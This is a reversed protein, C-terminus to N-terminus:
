MATLAQLMVKEAIAAEKPNSLFDMVMSLPNVKADKKKFMDLIAM